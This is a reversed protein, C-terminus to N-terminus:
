ITVVRLANTTGALGFPMGSVLVISEGTRALGRKRVQAVAEDVAQEYSTEDQHATQTGWLLSLRREVAAEPSLVLLPQSPRERALRVATNGSATFAIIACADISDALRVAAEAVAHYISPEVEMQAPGDHPNERIHQEAAHAISAMFQVAEEPYEGAATEASLM